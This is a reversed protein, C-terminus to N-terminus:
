LILGVIYLLATIGATLGGFWGAMKKKCVPKDAVIRGTQGNMTFSYNKGQFTYNLKWVPMMVYEAANRKIRVNSKVVDISSYGRITDKAANTIYENVRKEVRPALQMSDYNYKEAYYGSLYAMEFGTIEQYGFPELKDMIDDPMRESADAPIKRFDTALEREVVYHDTHTYDYKGRSERRVRTCKASMDIEASYDYLWFPVYIGQMKEIVSKSSLLSPTLKGKKAWARYMEEAQQKQIKFPIVGSPLLAGTLRDEMLSPRGCFSCFTAATHEDTLVEAGCGQCRYIKVDGTTSGTVFEGDVVDEQQQNEMNDYDFEKALEEYRSEMEEVTKFTGCHKCAMQQSVGDFEMPAGCNPCLYSYAEM